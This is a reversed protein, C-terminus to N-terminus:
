CRARRCGGHIGVNDEAQGHRSAPASVTRASPGLLVEHINSCSIISLSSFVQLARATEEDAVRKAAHELM